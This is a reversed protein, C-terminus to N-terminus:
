CISWGPLSLSLSHFLSLPTHPMSPPQLWSGLCLLCSEVSGSQARPGQCVGGEVCQTLSERAGTHCYHPIVCLFTFIDPSALIHAISVQGAEVSTGPREHNLADVQLSFLLPHSHSFSLFHLVTFSQSLLFVSM